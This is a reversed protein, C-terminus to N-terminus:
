AAEHFEDDDATLAWAWRPLTVSQIENSYGPWRGSRCCRDYTELLQTLQRWGAEVADDSIRYVAVGHPPTREVCVFLFDDIPHGLAALGHTYFAAQRHYGYQWLSREFAEPSADRTTKLDAVLPAGAALHDIRGKCLLGTPAGEHHWLASVEREGPAGLIERAAPHALVAERMRLCLEYDDARLVQGRGYAEVLADWAERGRKTRRDLAAAATYSREFLEPQLIAAHTARGVLQAPSSPAPDDIMARCHAPSRALATLRSNSCAEFAHYDADPIDPYLGARGATFCARPDHLPRIM